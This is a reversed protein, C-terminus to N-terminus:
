KNIEAELADLAGQLDQEAVAKIVEAAAAARETARAVSESRYADREAKHYEGLARLEDLQNYTMELPVACGGLTLAVACILVQKKM